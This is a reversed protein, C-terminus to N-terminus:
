IFQLMDKKSTTEGPRPLGHPTKDVRESILASQLTSRDGIEASPIGQLGGALFEVSFVGCRPLVSYPFSNSLSFVNCFTDDAELSYQTVTRKM